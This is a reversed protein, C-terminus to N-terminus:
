HRGLFCLLPLGRGAAPGEPVGLARYADAVNMQKANQITSKQHMQGHDRVMPEGAELWIQLLREHRFSYLGQTIRVFDNPMTHRGGGSHFMGQQFTDHDRLPSLVMKELGHKPAVVADLARGKLPSPRRARSPSAPSSAESGLAASRPSIPPLVESVRFHEVDTGKKREELAMERKLCIRMLEAGLVSDIQDGPVASYFLRQNVHLASPKRSRGKFKPPRRYREAGDFQGFNGQSDPSTETASSDPVNAMGYLLTQVDSLDLLGSPIVEWHFEEKSMTPFRILHLLEEGLADRLNQPTADLGKLKCQSRAWSSLARFMKIEHVSVHEVDLILRLTKWDLKPWHVSDFVGQTQEMICKWCRQSQAECFAAVKLESMPGKLDFDYKVSKVLTAAALEKISGDKPLEDIDTYKSMYDEGPGEQMLERRLSRWSSVKPRQSAYSDLKTSGLTSGPPSAALALGVQSMRHGYVTKSAHPNIGASMQIQELKERRQVLTMEHIKELDKRQAVVEQWGSLCAKVTLVKIISLVHLVSTPIVAADAIYQLCKQGLGSVMYRDALFILHLVNDLTIHVEDTYMFRLFELFAGATTEEIVMTKRESRSSGPSSGLSFTSMEKSLLFNSNTDDCSHKNGGLFFSADQWEEEEHDEFLRHFFVPSSSAVIFSHAPITQDEVQFNMDSM